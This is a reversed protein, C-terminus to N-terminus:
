QSPRPDKITRHLSIRDSLYQNLGYQGMLQSEKLKEAETLNQLVAKVGYEGVGILKYSMPKKMAPKCCKNDSIGEDLNCNVHKLMEAKNDKYIGSKYKCDTKSTNHRGIETTAHLTMLYLGFLLDYM